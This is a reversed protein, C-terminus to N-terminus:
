TKEALSHSIATLDSAAITGVPVLPAILTYAELVMSTTSSMLPYNM